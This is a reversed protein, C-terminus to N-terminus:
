LLSLLCLLWVCHTTRSQIGFLVTLFSMKFFNSFYLYLSCETANYPPQNETNNNTQEPPNQHLPPSPPPTITFSPTKIVPFTPQSIQVYLSTINYQKRPISWCIHCFMLLQSIWTNCIDTNMISNERCKQMSSLKWSLFYTLSIKLLFFPKSEPTITWYVPVISFDWLLFRWSPIIGSHRLSVLHSNWLRHVPQTTSPSHVVQLPIVGSINLPFLSKGYGILTLERFDQKLRFHLMIFIDAGFNLVKEGRGM